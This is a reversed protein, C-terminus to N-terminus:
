NINGIRKREVEGERQRDRERQRKGLMMLVLPAQPSQIGSSRNQGCGQPGSSRADPADAPGPPCRAQFVEFDQPHIRDVPRHPWWGGGVREKEGQLVSTM